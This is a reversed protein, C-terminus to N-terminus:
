LKAVRRYLRQSGLTKLLIKHSAIAPSSPAHRGFEGHGDFVGFFQSNKAGGFNEHVCFADQNAKNLSEPYYGRQSVYAYNITYSGGEGFPVVVTKVGESSVVRSNYEKATLPGGAIKNLYGSKKMDETETNTDAATVLADRSDPAEQSTACGM